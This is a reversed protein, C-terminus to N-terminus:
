AGAESVPPWGCTAEVPIGASSPYRTRPRTTRHQGATALNTKSPSTNPWGRRWRESGAKWTATAPSPRAPSSSCGNAKVAPLPAYRGPTTSESSCARPTLQPRFTPLWSSNVNPASVPSCSRGTSIPFGTTVVIDRARVTHGAKVKVDGDGSKTVPSREFIKGGAATLQDAVALLFKRPHFQGQNRLRVAGAVPYPLGTGSVFEAPLGADAAAAAETRLATASAETTAYTYADRQEWECDAGLAAIQEIAESQSQAYLRAREAGLDAYITKHLATVKATTNGSSAEAVRGAELLAVSRGSRTLAWAVCLGAIGGGVVAVDVDLDADLSPYDTSTTSRLWYSGPATM